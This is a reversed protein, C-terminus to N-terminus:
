LRGASRQGPKVSPTPGLNSGTTPEPQALDTGTKAEGHGSFL